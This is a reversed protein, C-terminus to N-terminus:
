IYNSFLDIYKMKFEWFKVRFPVKLSTLEGSLIQKYQEIFPEFMIMDELLFNDNNQHVLMYNTFSIFAFIITFPITLLISTKILFLISLIALVGFFFFRSLNVSLKDRFSEHWKEKLVGVGRDKMINAYYLNKEFKNKFRIKRFLRFNKEITIEGFHSEFKFM